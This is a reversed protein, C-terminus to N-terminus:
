LNLKFSGIMKESIAKFTEYKAQECTYTIIYAKDDIVWFKQEFRLDYIGQKGTYIMVQHEGQDNKVTENTLIKCDTFIKELQGESIATFKKLTLKMGALDQIMFSMNERFQDQDSELGSMLLYSTGFQGSTDVSWSSPHDIESGAHNLHTFSTSDQAFMMMSTLLLGTILTITKM